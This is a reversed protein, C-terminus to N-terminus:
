AYTVKLKPVWAGYLDDAQKLLRDGYKQHVDAWSVAGSFQNLAKAAGLYKSSALAILSVRVNESGLLRPIETRDKAFTVNQEDNFPQDVKAEIVIIDKEGFLCLDFTRKPSFDTSRVRKQQHWLYDRYFCVELGLDWESQLDLRLDCKQNLWIAFDAPDISAHSFLVHCYYREERTLDSWTHGNFYSISM